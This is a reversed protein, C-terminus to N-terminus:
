RASHAIPQTRSVASLAPGTAAASGHRRPCSAAGRAAHVGHRDGDDPRAGGPAPLEGDDARRFRRDDDPQDSDAGRRVSEDPLTRGSAGDGPQAAGPPNRQRSRHGRHAPLRRLGHGLVRAGHTGADGGRGRDRLRDAAHRHLSNRLSRFLAMVIVIVGALTVLSAMRSDGVIRRHLDTGVKEYSFEVFPGAQKRLAALTAPSLMATTEPNNSYLTVAGLFRDPGIRRISSDILGAPLSRSALEFGVVPWEASGWKRLLDVAPGFAKPNLGAQEIERDLTAAAGALDLGALLDHRRQQLSAAPLLSGPALVARLQGDRRLPELAGQLRSTREIVEQESGDVLLVLPAGELGFRSALLRQGTEAADDRQGLSEIRTAVRMGPIAAATVVLVVTGAALVARPRRAVLSGAARAVGPLIRFPGGELRSPFLRWWLSMLAPVTFLTHVLLMALGITLVLGLESLGKVRALALAITGTSTTFLCFLVSKGTTLYTARIADDVSRGSAAEQPVRTFFYTVQDDGLGALIAIFGLSILNVEGPYFGILGTAWLIALGTPLVTLVLAPLWRYVLLCLLLNGLISVLSAVRLDRQMLRRNQEAYAHAGVPTLSLPAGGEPDPRSVETVRERVWQMLRVAFEYDTAPERPEAIVLLARHDRSFFRGGSGWEMDFGALGGGERTAPDVFAMLGLPDMVIYDGGFATFPTLLGTASQRVQNRIGDPALRAALRDRQSLDVFAPFNEVYFALLQRLETESLGARASRFLGSERMQEVLRDAVAELRETDAEGDGAAELLLFFRNGYGFESIFDRLVRAEPAAAGILDAIDTKLQLTGAKIALAVSAVAVVLLVVITHRQTISAIWGLLRDTVRAVDPKRARLVVHALPLKNPYRQATVSLGEDALLRQYVEAPQGAPVTGSPGLGLVMRDLWATTKALLGGDTDPTRVILLGGPSLAAACRALLAAQEAADIYQLVDLVLILGAEPIEFSRM